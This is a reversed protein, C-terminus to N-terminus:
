RIFAVQCVQVSIDEDPCGKRIKEHLAHFRIPKVYSLAEGGRKIPFSTTNDEIVYGGLHSSYDSIEGDFWKPVKYGNEILISSLCQKEDFGLTSPVRVLTIMGIVQEM